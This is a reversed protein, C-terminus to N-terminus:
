RVMVPAIPLYQLGVQGGGPATATATINLNAPGPGVAEFLLAALMGTGAVGTTDGTRAIAIDVRGAAADAQQTFAASVGGARMFTGEQVTRVRLAAPNYTVTLSVNSLQSANTISIPVTYPGGGVRFETGPLSLIVQGGSAATTVPTGPVAGQPGGPIAPAAPPAAPAALGQPPPGQPAPGLPPLGQGAPAAAAPAAAPDGTPNIVPPPGSLGVNTATGIYIPALNQPTLEHSRVIRPTLLMILDTQSINSDNASFLQKILPIRLLWPFGKLVTRQEERLLGALLTSEGERLRSTTTVRRTGFSPLSQDNIAINPGLFSSEVILELRIDGEFSVRPLVEVNIGVPRYTFSVLPNVAAGGTAIPAFSTTPVPIEDGLNLKLNTGESGRLQPKAILKTDTDTELFRVLASPVSLYFDATNIGRSVANANFPPQTAAAAPAAEPSFVGGVTYSVLDIGFQKARARNVELIQIDVVIEAKPKDAAEVLRDIIAIMAETARVTLTNNGKTASILPQLQTNGVGRVVSNLTAQVEAPDANSIYYTKIVLEEYQQRKAATDQAILITRQNVVKYFLQNALVIQDLAEQLTVNEMQVTYPREPFQTDFTVNIGTAQGIGSFIDRLQTNFFRLPALVTKLNMLPQPGQARAQERLDRLTNARTAEAQDRMRRETELVKAAVQRNTPDYESARRYERLADEMQGRAEAVRATDLHRQSATLMARELAIRYEARDPDAQVARQYQQVATDWDGSRAANDARRYASGAACGVALALVVFVAATKRLATRDFQTM